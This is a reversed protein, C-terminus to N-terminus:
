HFVAHRKLGLVKDVRAITLPSVNSLDSALCNLHIDIIRMLEKFATKSIEINHMKIVSKVFAKADKDNTAVFRMSNSNSTGGIQSDIGARAIGSNFEVESMVVGSGANSSTYNPHPYGFYDSAMSMGGKQGQGKVPSCMSSIYGMVNQLHKPQIRKEGKLLAFIIAISAVNYSVADLHMELKHMVQQRDAGKLIIQFTDIFKSVTQSSM